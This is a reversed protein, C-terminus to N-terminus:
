FNLSSISGGDTGRQVQMHAQDVFNATYNVNTTQYGQNTIAAILADRVAAQNASLGSARNVLHEYGWMPYMGNQVANISFPVGQYSIPTASAAITAADAVGLYGIVNTNGAIVARESGGSSYGNTLVLTGSGAAL